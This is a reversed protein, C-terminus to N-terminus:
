PNDWKGKNLETLSRVRETYVYIWICPLYLYDLSVNCIFIFYIDHGVTNHYAINNICQMMSYHLTYLTFCVVYLMCSVYMNYTYCNDQMTCLVISGIYANKAM